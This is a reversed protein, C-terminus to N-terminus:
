GGFVEGFYKDLIFEINLEKLIEKIRNEIVLVRENKLFFFLM